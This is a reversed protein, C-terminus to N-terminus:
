FSETMQNHAEVMLDLAIGEINQRRASLNYLPNVTNVTSLTVQPAAYSSEGRFNGSWLIQQDSQRVLTLNVKMVVVYTASLVVGKALYPSAGGGGEKPDKAQYTISEITGMAKVEALNSDVLQTVQSRHFQQILANTLAVEVGPEQSKNKFVPVAIKQYGGPLQRRTSKLKYACSPLLVLMIALGAGFISFLKGLTAVAM